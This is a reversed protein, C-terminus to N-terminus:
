RAEPPTQGTEDTQIDKKNNNGYLKSELDYVRTLIEFFDEQNLVVLWPKNKKKWFVVPTKDEADEAAKEVAEHLNLNEVFKCEVQMWRDFAPVAVDPSDPSGSFQCGRRAEYGHERFLDRLLREGRAGKARSNIPM